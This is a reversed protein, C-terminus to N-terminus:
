ATAASFAQFRRVAALLKEALGGGAVAAHVVNPRGLALSLERSDFIAILECNERCKGRLKRLGDESGDVAEILLRVRGSDLASATKDFGTVVLGAKNAIALYQLADRRLLEEVRAPLEPNEGCKARFAKSFRHEAVAKALHRRDAKVWVGRGPLQQKLDPVVEGEPGLVFRLLKGPEATEGTVICM